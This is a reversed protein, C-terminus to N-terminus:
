RIVILKELKEILMNKYSKSKKKNYNEICKEANLVNGKYYRQGFSIINFVNVFDKSVLTSILSYFFIGNIVFANLGDVYNGGYVQGSGPLTYSMIRAKKTSRYKTKDAEDILTILENYTKKDFYSSLNYYNELYVKSNSWKAQYVSNLISLAFAKKKISDEKTFMITKTLYFEALSYKKDAMYIVAIDLRRENKQKSTESELLSIKLNEIAKNFKGMQRYCMAIKKYVLSNNTKIENLFIFRKYETIASYYNGINFYHDGLSLLDDASVNNSLLLIVVIIFFIKRMLNIM